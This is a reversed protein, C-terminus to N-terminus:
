DTQGKSRMWKLAERTSLPPLNTDEVFNVVRAPEQKSYERLAWGIAKQIFFEDSGINEHILSFLLAADTKDKYRLQFLLTTRRLWINHSVRWRAIRDEKVEPYLGFIDGVSHSALADVTDWWSKTVILHEVIEISEPLLKKRMRQLLDLGFYQYERQPLRWLSMLIPELQTIEPRGHASLFQRALQRREPSKIGFFEFQDRMYKKMPGANDANARDEFLARLPDLYDHTKQTM